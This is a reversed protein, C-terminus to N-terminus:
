IFRVRDYPYLGVFTTGHQINNQVCSSYKAITPQYKKVFADQKTDGNFTVRFDEVQKSTVLADALSSNAVMDFQEAVMSKVDNPIEEFGWDATVEVTKCYPAEDFVISNYWDGNLSNGSMLKYATTAVGDLEVSDIESLIPVNLTRYGERPLFSKTDNEGCINSCLLDSVRDQALNLYTNFNTTETASLPRGLLASIKAETM